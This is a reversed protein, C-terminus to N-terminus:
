RRVDRVAAVREKTDAIVLWTVGPNQYDNVPRICFSGDAAVQVRKIGRFAAGGVTVMAAAQQQRERYSPYTAAFTNVANVALSESMAEVYYVTLMSDAETPNDIQGFLVPTSKYPRSAGGEGHFQVRYEGSQVPANDSNWSIRRDANDSGCAVAIPISILLVAIIGLRM